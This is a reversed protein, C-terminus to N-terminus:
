LNREAALKEYHEHRKDHARKAKTPSLNPQDVFRHREAEDAATLEDFFQKLHALTSCRVSGLKKSQLFIRGNRLGVQQWRRVTVATVKRGRIRSPIMSAIQDPTLFGELEFSASNDIM